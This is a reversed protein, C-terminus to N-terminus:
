EVLEEEIAYSIIALLINIYHYDMNSFPYAAPLTSSLYDAIENSQIEGDPNHQKVFEVLEPIDFMEVIKKIDELSHEQDPHAAEAFRLVSEVISM